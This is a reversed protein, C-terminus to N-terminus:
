FILPPHIKKNGIERILKCIPLRNHRWIKIPRFRCAQIRIGRNKPSRSCNMFQVLPNNPRRRRRHREGRFLNGGGLGNSFLLLLRHPRRMSIYDPDLQWPLHKHNTGCPPANDHHRHPSYLGRWPLLINQFLRRRRFDQLRSRESFIAGTWDKFLPWYPSSEPM